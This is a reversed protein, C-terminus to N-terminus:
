VAGDTTSSPSPGDPAYPLSERGHMGLEEGMVQVRRL